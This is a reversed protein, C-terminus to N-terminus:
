LETGNVVAFLFVDCMILVVVVVAVVVEVEIMVCLVGFLVVVAVVVEVEIRM